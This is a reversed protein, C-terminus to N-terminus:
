LVDMNLQDPFFNFLKEMKWAVTVPGAKISQAHFHAQFRWANFLM